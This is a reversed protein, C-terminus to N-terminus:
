RGAGAVAHAGPQDLVRVPAVHRRHTGRPPHQVEGLAELADLAVGLDREEVSTVVEGLRHGPTGRGTPQGDYPGIPPMRDDDVVLRTRRVRRRHELPEEPQPDRRSSRGRHERHGVPQASRTRESWQESISPGSAPFVRLYSIRAIQFPATDKPSTLTGTFSYAAVSDCSTENRLTCALSPPGIWCWLSQGIWRPAAACASM